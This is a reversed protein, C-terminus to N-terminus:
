PPRVPIVGQREKGLEKCGEKWGEKRGEKRSPSIDGKGDKGLKKWGDMKGEMM